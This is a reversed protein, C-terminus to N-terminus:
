TATKEDINNLDAYSNAVFARIPFHDCIYLSRKFMRANTAIKPQAM